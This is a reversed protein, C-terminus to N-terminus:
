TREQPQSEKALAYALNLLAMDTEYTHLLKHLTTGAPFITDIMDPTISEQLDDDQVDFHLYGREEKIQQYVSRRNQYDEASATGSLIVRVFAPAPVEFHLLNALHQTPDVRIEKQVFRIVNTKLANATVKKDAGIDLIYVEGSSGDAIDTQQHTGANFIRNEIAFRTHTHGILWADMNCSLLEDPTMSYYLQDKDPSFGTVAGHAIGISLQGPIAPPASTLWSLANERSHKDHCPCAYFTVGDFPYPQCSRCLCTNPAACAEFDRWLPSKDDTYSDHNGPLVLVAQGSFEGLLRCVAQHLERGIGSTKDYLDGAIVFFDCAERNAADVANQLARLRAESLPRAIDPYKAYSKGLHLDGTLLIKM